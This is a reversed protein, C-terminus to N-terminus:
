DHRRPRGGQQRANDVGQLLEAPPADDDAGADAPLGGLEGRDAHVEGIAGATEGLVYAGEAGEPPRRALREAALEVVHGAKPELLPDAGPAGRDEDAPEALGPVAPRRPLPVPEHVAAPLGLVDPGRERVDIREARLRPPATREFVPHLDARRRIALLPLAGEGRIRAGSGRPDDHAGSRAEEVHEAVGVRLDVPAVEVQGLALHLEWPGQQCTSLGGAVTQSDLM